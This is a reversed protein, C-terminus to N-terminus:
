IQSVNGRKGCFITYRVTGFQVTGSLPFLASTVADATVSGKYINKKIAPPIRSPLLEFEPHLPHTEDKIISLAKRHLATSYLDCLQKQQCAITKGAPTDKQDDSTLLSMSLSILLSITKGLELEPENHQTKMKCFGATCSYSSWNCLCCVEEHQLGRGKRQSACRMLYFSQMHPALCDTQM